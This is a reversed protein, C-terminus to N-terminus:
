LRNKSEAVAHRLSGCFVQLINRDVSSMNIFEFGIGRGPDVSRIVVNARFFGNPIKAGFYGITGVVTAQNTRLFLGRWSIVHIEGGIRLSSSSFGAQFKDRIHHRPFSRDKWVM